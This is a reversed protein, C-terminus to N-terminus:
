RDLHRFRKVTAHPAPGVTWGAAIGQFDDLPRAWKTGRANSRYTVLPVPRDAITAIVEEPVGVGRLLTPLDELLVVDRVVYLGGKIHEYIGGEVPLDRRRALDQQAETKDM